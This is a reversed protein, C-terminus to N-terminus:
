EIKDVSYIYIETDPSNINEFGIHSKEDFLSKLFAQKNGNFHEWVQPLYTGSLFGKKVYVGHVNEKIESIDLIKKLPSLISIEIDIKELEELSLPPFRPDDFAAKVSYDIIADGILMHPHLSGICGRLEGDITLTVFISGVINLEPYQFYDIKLIKENELYHKISKRALNIFYEKKESSLDFKFDADNKVFMGSLYGVVSEKDPYVDGSNLYKLIKFDNYGYDIACFLGVAMPSFGCAITDLSKRYKTEILKKTLFFMDTENYKIAQKYSIAFGNDCVYAIEYPPYHSLDTSIVLVSNKKKLVESIKKGINLLIDKDEYNVVIPVIKFKKNIYQLFPLQVEISHENLHANENIEFNKDKLLFDVIDNDVEVNGLVNSFITNKILMAKKLYSSHSTGVIIAIDFNKELHSFSYASISGSYVYGAHPSIIIKSKDKFDNINETLFNLLEEKDCPYFRGEVCPKRIM